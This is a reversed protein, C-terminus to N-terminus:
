ATAEMAWAHRARPGARKCRGCRVTCLAMKAVYSASLIVNGWRQHGSCCCATHIIVASSTSEDSTLQTHLGDRQGASDAMMQIDYSVALWKQFPLATAHIAGWVARDLPCDVILAM